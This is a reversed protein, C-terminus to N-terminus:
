GSGGSWVPFRFRPDPRYRLFPTSLLPHILFVGSGVGLLSWEKRTIELEGSALQYNLQYTYDGDTESTYGEPNQM